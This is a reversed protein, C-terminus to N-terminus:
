VEAPIASHYIGPFPLRVEWEVESGEKAISLDPIKILYSKPSLLYPKQTKRHVASLYFTDTIPTPIPLEKVYGLVTLYENAPNECMLKITATARRDPNYYRYVNGSADVKDEFTNSEVSITIKESEGGDIFFPTGTAPTVTVLVDRIDFTTLTAAM